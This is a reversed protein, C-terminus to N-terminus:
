ISCYGCTCCFVRCRWVCLCFVVPTSITYIGREPEQMTIGYICLMQGVYEAYFVHRRIYRLRRAAYARMLMTWCRTAFSSSVNPYREVYENEISYQFMFVFVHTYCRLSVFFYKKRRKKNVCRFSLITSVYTDFIKSRTAWNWSRKPSTLLRMCVNLSVKSVRTFMHWGYKVVCIYYSRM